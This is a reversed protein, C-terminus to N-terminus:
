SARRRRARHHGGSFAERLKRRARLQLVRVVEPSSGLRAAITAAPYGALKRLFTERESASLNELAREFVLWTPVTQQPDRTEDPLEHFGGGPLPRDLEIPRWDRSLGRRRALRALRRMHDPDSELNGLRDAVAVLQSLFGGLRFSQDLRACLQHFGILLGGAREWNELGQIGEQIVQTLQAGTYRDDTALLLAESVAQRVYAPVSDWRRRGEEIAGRALADFPRALQSLDSLIIVLCLLGFAVLDSAAPERTTIRRFLIPPRGARWMALLDLKFGELGVREAVRALSRRALRRNVPSLALDLL